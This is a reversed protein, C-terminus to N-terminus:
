EVQLGNRATKARRPEWNPAYYKNELGVSQYVSTGSNYPTTSRQISTKLDSIHGSAKELRTSFMHQKLMHRHGTRIFSSLRPSSQRLCCCVMLASCPSNYNVNKVIQMTWIPPCLKIVNIKYNDSWFSELTVSYVLVTSERSSRYNCGHRHTACLASLLISLQPQFCLPAIIIVVIVHYYIIWVWDAGNPASWIHEIFIRFSKLETCLM